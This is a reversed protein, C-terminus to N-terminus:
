VHGKIGERNKLIGSLQDVVSDAALGARKLLFSRSGVGPTSAIGICQIKQTSLRKINLLELIASGLGGWEVNEEMIVLHPFRRHAAFVLEQDLPKLFRLDYIAADVGAMKLISSAERAVEVMSGLALFAMDTGERVLQGRGWAIKSYPGSPSHGEPIEGKPYRIAVPGDQELATYIMNRLDQGCSPAMISLNPMIRLFSLDYIGQHTPGDGPVLGARDLLVLVPLNQLCIDELMQDFSRQFFTSYIAVVPKMGALSLGSAFSLAHEEAIGVDFFRTPYLRAFENLGTGDAMAATICVLDPRKGGLDALTSRTVDTFTPSEPKLAEGNKIDFPSASHYKVPNREAPPYGMGKRTIVHLFVPTEFNRAQNMVEILAKLNHGDIPGLYSFGFSEFLMSPLVMAKLVFKFRDFLHIIWRGFLPFRHLFSKALRKAGRYRRSSRLKALNRAMAGVNRSISHENDNLILILDKQLQGANNLAELALGGTLAGDGMVAIIKHNGGRIDRAARLGLAQSLSTSAHGVNAVDFVSEERSPFGSLGNDQRLSSFQDERGTILKHTYTQHGVDWLILDEPADFVYHLALTLEITGLNSSLHGGGFAVQRIIKERM